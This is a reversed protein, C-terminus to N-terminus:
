DVFGIVMSYIGKLVMIVGLWLVFVFSIDWHALLLFGGGIIDLFGLFDLFFGSAFATILSYFGKLLFLVALWFVITNGSFSLVTSLAIVIGALLDLIGLIVLSFM